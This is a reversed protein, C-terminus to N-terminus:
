KLGRNVLLADIGPEKGRFAIYMDLPDPENLAHLSIDDRHKSSLPSLEKNIKQLTDNTNASNLSGFVRMESNKLGM